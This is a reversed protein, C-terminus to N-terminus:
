FLWHTAALVHRVFLCCFLTKSTPSKYPATYLWTHVIFHFTFVIRLSNYMLKQHDRFRNASTNGFNIKKENFWRYGNIITPTQLAPLIDSITPECTQTRKQL